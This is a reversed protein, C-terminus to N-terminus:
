LVRMGPRLREVAGALSAKLFERAMAEAIYVKEVAAPPRYFLAPSESRESAGARGSRRTRGQSRARVAVAAGCSAVAWSGTGSPGWHSRRAGASRGTRCRSDM